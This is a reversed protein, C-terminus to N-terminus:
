RASWSPSRSSPSVLGCGGNHGYKVVSTAILLSVLNMVKIM